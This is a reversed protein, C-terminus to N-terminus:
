AASGLRSLKIFHDTRRRFSTEFCHQQAFDRGRRAAEIMRERNVDLKAITEALNDPKGLPSLFGSGSLASIGQFAENAYGVIPVGCSMVEPYTSSPDGQLHSCVFLDAGDKLFPIWGSRFDVPPFIKVHDELGHTTIASCLKSYEPGAGYISFKFAVGRQRLHHAVEPLQLVGKMPVFRGGFALRLPKGSRLRDAKKALVTDCVVELKRVRNDFYLLADPCISHYANYTPTGNCQLGACTGILKRRTREAQWVWLKRRIKLLPNADGADIIQWETRRTYESVHVIPVGLRNCLDTTEAEFPSLFGVVLAASGLRAALAHPDAPRTEVFHGDSHADIEYHDLDSFPTAAIDFLSVVPGPWSKAYEAAGDHYKKTIVMRGSAARYAKLAPLLILENTQASASQM